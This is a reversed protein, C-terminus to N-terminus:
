GARELLRAIAAPWDAARHALTRQGYLYARAGSALRARLAPDGVLRDLADTWAAETGEVLWGTEGHDITGEYAPHKSAVPAAGAAAYDLFKVDSKARTFPTDRLPSIAVDWRINSTFWVMFLPYEHEPAKGRVIRHPLGALGDLTSSRGAVGVLEFRVAGPARACVARLAPLVMALDADHTYTGMYGIVVPRPGFPEVARDGSHPSRRVLLREDLANPLVEINPNLTAFRRALADTTVLVGDARRLLLEVVREQEESPWDGREARLDLLNDDLAYLLRAGAARTRDCLEEALALSVDPRWLRDVLVADVSRGDYHTDFGAEVIGALSPHRLPRILRLFASGHPRFDAGFEYLVHLRLARAM